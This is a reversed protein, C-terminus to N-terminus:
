SSKILERERDMPIQEVEPQRNAIMEKLELDNEFKQLDQIFNEHKIKIM